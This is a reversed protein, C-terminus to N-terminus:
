FVFTTGLIAMIKVAREVNKRYSELSKLQTNKVFQQAIAEDQEQKM